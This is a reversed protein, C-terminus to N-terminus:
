TLKQKRCFKFGEWAQPYRVRVTQLSRCSYKKMHPGQFTVVFHERSMAKLTRHIHRKGVTSGHTNTVLNGPGRRSVWSSHPTFDLLVYRLLSNLARSAVSSNSEHGVERSLSFYIQRGLVRKVRCVGVRAGHEPYKIAGSRWKSSMQEKGNM